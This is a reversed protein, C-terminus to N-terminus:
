LSAPDYEITIQTEAKRKGLLVPPIQGSPRKVVNANQDTGSLDVSDRHEQQHDEHVSPNNKLGKAQKKAIENAKSKRKM